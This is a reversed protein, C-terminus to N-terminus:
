FYIDQKKLYNNVYAAVGEELPVFPLDYGASRLGTLDAQTYYQYAPKVNEPMDIFDIPPIQGNCAIGVAAAMDLYSRAKGTGVNFIGRAEPHELMWLIVQVADGVWVFDRRQEGHPVDARGSKFLRIMGEQQLQRFFHLVVSAQSGKHYENPGYVNFFRLAAVNPLEEGSFVIKDALLKSWGYLNLPRLRNLDVSKASATFGNFGDGYTAASSAYVLRVGSSVSFNFLEETLRVNTRTVTDADTAVTSSVAGLHVIGKIREGDSNLFEKLECPEIARYAGRKAMNRWKEPSDSFKDCVVVECGGHQLAGVTCSGIFGYGGTVLIM